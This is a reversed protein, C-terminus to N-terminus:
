WNFNKWKGFCWLYHIIKTWYRFYDRFKQWEILNFACIIHEDFNFKFSKCKQFRRSFIFYKWFYKFWRITTCFCHDDSINAEIRNTVFVLESKWNQLQNRWFCEEIHPWTWMDYFDLSVIFVNGLLSIDCDAIFKIKWVAFFYFLFLFTFNNKLQNFPM